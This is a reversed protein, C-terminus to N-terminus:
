QVGQLYRRYSSAAVGLAAALSAKAADYAYLSAIYNEEAVAVEQEAQVEELNSAVGARFRDRALTLEQRALGRAHEAVQVQANAANINLLATRVQQGIRARLDAAQDEAERLRAAAALAEGHIRGGAFVPVEISGALTFTPHNETIAQGITGYDANFNVAPWRQGRAAALALQAARVLEQAARFDPRSAMAEALAGAETMAPPPAYAIHAAVVFRQGLPLGIARALTLQQQALNNQQVILNQRQRDEEVQARVVDLGSVTGARHMDEAQQRAQAATALQAQAAAVRAGDSVTLLYQNAVALVVLNRTQQYTHRAANEKARASRWADLGAINLVPQQLYGRADFVRFPGVIQPFGPFNFGFAALNIKTEEDSTRATVEPLLAALSQWRAARAEESQSASLLVALNNRLGREIADQLTLQLPVASVQGQPVGGALPSESAQSAQGLETTMPMAPAPVYAPTAPAQAGAAAGAALLCAVVGRIWARGAGSLGADGLRARGLARVCQATDRAEGDTEAPQRM